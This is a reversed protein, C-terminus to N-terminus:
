LACEIRAYINRDARRTRVNSDRKARVYNRTHSSEEEELSELRSACALQCGAPWPLSQSLKELDM